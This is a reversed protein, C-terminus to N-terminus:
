PAFPDVHCASSVELGRYTLQPVESHCRDIAFACRTHFACGSPRDAPNPPVGPIPILRGRHGDERHPLATLLGHTYPHRPTTLLQSAPGIEILRGAYCVHVDDALASMVGLDHTILIISVDSDSRLRELTRLIGAQVTVDLATTPEDAVLLKPDCALAIAIAIRQRMGGSFQHPFASLAGDPDPIRVLKLLEVARKRRAAKNLGLHSKLHDTLQGGISIMPHLSTMPDQFVMAIDKGRISRLAKTGISMLDRGEFLAQGSLRADPPALGMLAKVAMTKGSGSEGALGFISNRGVDFSVDDVIRVWGSRTPLEVTLGRVSLLAEVAPEVAVVSPEQQDMTVEAM